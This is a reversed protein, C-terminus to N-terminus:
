IWEGDLFSKRWPARDLLDRRYALRPLGFFIGFNPRATIEMRGREHRYMQFALAYAFVLDDNKGPTAEPRGENDRFELCEMLLEGDLCLFEPQFNETDGEGQLAERLAILMM